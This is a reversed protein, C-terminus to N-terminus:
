MYMYYLLTVITCTFYFICTLIYRKFIIYNAYNMYIFYFTAKHHMHVFKLIINLTCLIICISAPQMEQICMYMYM